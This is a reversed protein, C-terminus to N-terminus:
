ATRHYYRLLGGLRERCRVPTGWLPRSEPTILEHRAGVVREHARGMSRTSRTSTEARFGTRPAGTGPPTPGADTLPGSM